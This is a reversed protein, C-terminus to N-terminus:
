GNKKCFGDWSGAYVNDGQLLPISSLISNEVASVSITADDYVFPISYECVNASSCVKGSLDYLFSSYSKNDKFQHCIFKRTVDKAAFPVFASSLSIKCLLAYGDVVHDAGMCQAMITSDCLSKLDSPLRSEEIKGDERISTLSHISADLFRMKLENEIVDLIRTDAEEANYPKSLSDTVERITALFQIEKLM